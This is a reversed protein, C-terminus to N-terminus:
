FPYRLEFTLINMHYELLPLWSLDIAALYEEVDEAIPRDYDIPHLWAILHLKCALGQLHLVGECGSLGIV